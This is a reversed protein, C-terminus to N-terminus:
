LIANKSNGKLLHTVILQWEPASAHEAMEHLM